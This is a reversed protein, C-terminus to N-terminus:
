QESETKGILNFLGDSYGLVETFMEYHNLLMEQMHLRCGCDRVQAALDAAAYQYVGLGLCLALSTASRRCGIPQARTPPKASVYRCRNWTLMASNPWM